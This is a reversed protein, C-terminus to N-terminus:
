RQFNQAFVQLMAPAQQLLTARYLPRAAVKRTGRELRLARDKIEQDNIDFTYWNYSVRECVMVNLLAKTETAPVEGSASRAQGFRNRNRGGRPANEHAERVADTYHEAMARTGQEARRDFEAFFKPNLEFGM